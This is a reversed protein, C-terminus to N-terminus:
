PLSGRLRRLLSPAPRLGPNLLCELFTFLGLPLTAPPHASPCGARAGWGEGPSLGTAPGGLGLGRGAAFKKRGQRRKGGREELPACLSPRERPPPRPRRAAPAQAQLGPPGAGAQHGSDRSRRGPLWLSGPCAAGSYRPRWSAARRGGERRGGAAGEGREEGDGGGQSIKWHGSM